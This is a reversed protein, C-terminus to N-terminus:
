NLHKKSIKIWRSDEKFFKKYKVSIVYYFRIGDVSFFGVLKPNYFTKERSRKAIREKKILTSM